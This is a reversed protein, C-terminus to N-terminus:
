CTGSSLHFTACKAGARSSEFCARDCDDESYGGAKTLPSGILLAQYNANSRTLVCNETDSRPTQSLQGVLAVCDKTDAKWTVGDADPQTDHVIRACAAASDASALNANEAATIKKTFTGAEQGPAFTCTYPLEAACSCGTNATEVWTHKWPNYSCIGQLETAECEDKTLAPQGQCSDAGIGVPQKCKCRQRKAADNNWKPSHTCTLTATAPKENPSPAFLDSGQKSVDAEHVMDAACGSRLLACKNNTLSQGDVTLVFRHCEPHEYCKKDCEAVSYNIDESTSIVFEPKPCAKADAQILRWRV